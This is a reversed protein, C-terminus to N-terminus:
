VVKNTNQKKLENNVGFRQEAEAIKTEQFTKVTASMRRLKEDMELTTPPFCMWFHKLLEAVSDHIAQLDVMDTPNLQVINRGVEKTSDTALDLLDEYNDDMDFDEDSDVVDLMNECVKQVINRYRRAQDASYRQTSRIVDGVAFSISDLQEEHNDSRLEESELVIENLDKEVSENEDVEMDNVSSQPESGGIMAVKNEAATLLVRESHYNFRKLLMNKTSSSSQTLSLLDKFIPDDSIYSFDLTKHTIKTGLLKRMEDDDAKICDSFPDSSSTTIDRERHFYHSQFFKAWFEQETMEHPVLELHKREVAPYTKFISQITDVNLNLKIGNTGESQAISSLFGSSVGTKDETADQDYYYESWFDQASILKSAVLHRYLEQLHKNQELIKKKVELERTKSYKLLRSANQSAVQRHHILAQQLTEKVLDRDKVHMEKGLPNVFVFTAQEEDYKCIQLQTKTKNPPSIRQGRIDSFIIVLKEDSANGIWEVRDEYVYFTGIPSKSVGPMRYKVHEVCLLLDRGSMVGLTYEWFIAVYADGTM